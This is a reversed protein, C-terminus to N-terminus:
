PWSLPATSPSKCDGGSPLKGGLAEYLVLGLSYIDSGSDVAPLTSRDAHRAAAWLRQEPSMYKPTGGFWGTPQSGDRVPKQALHFDLLMPQGDTAVLVNAPKVDLHVLGREHAYRLAEALCSGIWALAQVYSATELLQRAPGRSPVVVPYNAQIQDLADVLDRGTRQAVPRDKLAELL